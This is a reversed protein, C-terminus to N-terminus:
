NCQGELADQSFNGNDGKRKKIIGLYKKLAEMLVSFIPYPPDGPDRVYLLAICSEEEFENQAGDGRVCLKPVIEFAVEKDYLVLEFIQQMDEASLMTMGLVPPGSTYMSVLNELGTKLVEIIKAAPRVAIFFTFAIDLFVVPDVMALLLFPLDHNYEKEKMAIKHVFKRCLTLILNVFSPIFNGEIEVTAHILDDFEDIEVRGPEGGRVSWLESDSLIKTVQTNVEEALWRKTHELLSNDRSVLSITIM